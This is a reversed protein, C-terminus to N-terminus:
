ISVCNVSFFFFFAGDHNTFPAVLLLLPFWHVILDLVILDSSIGLKDESAMAPCHRSPIRFAFQGARALWDSAKFSFSREGSYPLMEQLVRCTCTFVVIVFKGNKGTATSSKM